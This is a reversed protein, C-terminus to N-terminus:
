MEQRLDIFISIYSLLASLFGLIMVYDFGVIAGFFLSAFGSAYAAFYSLLGIIAFRRINRNSFEEKFINAFLLISILLTAIGIIIYAGIIAIQNQLLPTLSINLVINIDLGIIFMLSLSIIQVLAWRILVEIKM